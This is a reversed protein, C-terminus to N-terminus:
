KWCEPPPTVKEPPSASICGLEQERHALLAALVADVHRDLGAAAAVILLELGAKIVYVENIEVELLHIRLHVASNGPLCVFPDERIKFLYAWCPM